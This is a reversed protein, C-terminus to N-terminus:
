KFKGKFNNDDTNSYFTKIGSGQAETDYKNQKIQEPSVNSSRKYYFLDSGDM